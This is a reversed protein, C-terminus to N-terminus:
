PPQIGLCALVAQAADVLAKLKVDARAITFDAPVGPQAVFAKTNALLAFLDKAAERFETIEQACQSAPGPNNAIEEEVLGVLDKANKAWVWPGAMPLTGTLETGVQALFDRAVSLSELRTGAELLGPLSQTPEPIPRSPIRGWLDKFTEIAVDLNEATGRARPLNPLVLAGLALVAAALTALPNVTTPPTATTGFAIPSDLGGRSGRYRALAKEATQLRQEFEAREDATFRATFNPDSLARRAEYIIAQANRAKEDDPIQRPPSIARYIRTMPPASRCAVDMHPSTKAGEVVMNSARVAEQEFIDSPHNISSPKPLAGIPPGATRQQMVHTLEHALLKKGESTTPAYQGGGFVINSGATYALANVARASEAAQADAHVRVQAFNHGFRSEM